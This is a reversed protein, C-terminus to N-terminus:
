RSHAHDERRAEIALIDKALNTIATSVRDDWAAVLAAEEATLDERWKETEQDNTEAWFLDDMEARREASIM